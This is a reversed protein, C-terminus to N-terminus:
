VRRHQQEEPASGQAIKKLGDLPDIERFHWDFDPGVEQCFPLLSKALGGSLHPNADGLSRALDTIETAAMQALSRCFPNSHAAELILPALRAFDGPTASVNWTMIDEESKGALALVGEILSQPCPPDPAIGDLHRLVEGFATRGIWSGGGIDGAPFGWGSVSRTTGDQGLSLGTVGTGISILTGPNGLTAAMLAAYGDSVLTVSQFDSLRELLDNRADELSIGALGAVIKSTKPDGNDSAESWARRIADETVKAGLSLAGAPGAVTKGGDLRARTKTGGVDLCFIAM